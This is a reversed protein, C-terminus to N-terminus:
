LGLWDEAEKRTRFVQVSQGQGNAAVTYMRAMGFTYNETAVWARRAGRAFIQDRSVLEKTAVDVLDDTIGSMDVIQRYTPDFDPDNRLSRHHELVDDNTM